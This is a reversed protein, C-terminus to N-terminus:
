TRSELDYYELVFSLAYTKPTPDLTALYNRCTTVFDCARTFNLHKVKAHVWGLGNDRIAVESFGRPGEGSLTYDVWSEAYIKFQEETKNKDM